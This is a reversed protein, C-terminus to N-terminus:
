GEQAARELAALVAAAPRRHRVCEDAFAEWFAARGVATLSGLILEIEAALAPDLALAADVRAAAERALGADDPLSMRGGLGRLRAERGKHARAGM